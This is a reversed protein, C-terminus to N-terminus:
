AADDDGLEELTAPDNLPTDEDSTNMFRQLTVFAGVTFLGCVILFFGRDWVSISPRSTYSSESM